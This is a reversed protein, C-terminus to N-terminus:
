SPEYIKTGGTWSDRWEVKKVIIKLLCFEDSEPGKPFHESLDFTALKWVRKKELLDSVIEAEGIVVAAKDGSPQEVFALCITPNRRIQSVKRSTCFTTVWISMDDEVIPSVPRVVPQDGDCTALYAHLCNEKMIAVIKETDSSGM